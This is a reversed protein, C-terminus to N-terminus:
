FITSYKEITGLHFLPPDPIYLSDKRLVGVDEEAEEDDNKKGGGVVKIKRSSLFLFLFIVFSLPFFQLEFSPLSVKMM